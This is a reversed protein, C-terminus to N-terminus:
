RAPPSLVPLVPPWSPQSASGVRGLRQCGRPASLVKGRVYGEAALGFSRTSRTQGSGVPTYPVGIAAHAVCTVRPLPRYGFLGLRKDIQLGRHRALLTGAFGGSEMLLLM